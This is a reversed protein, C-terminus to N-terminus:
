SNTQLEPIIETMLHTWQRTWYKDFLIAYEIWMEIHVHMVFYIKSYSDALKMQGNDRLSYGKSRRLSWNLKASFDATNGANYKFFTNLFIWISTFNGEYLRYSMIKFLPQQFCRSCIMWSLCSVWSINFESKQFYFYIGM